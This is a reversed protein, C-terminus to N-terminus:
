VLRRNALVAAVTGLSNLGAHVGIPAGLDGTQLRLWALVLGAGSTVTVAVLVAGVQVRRSAGPRNAAVLNLTPGIHWMGFCLSSGVAAFTDGASRLDALLVGRFAIEEVFATGLPVRVLVQYALSAGTLGAVRRDAILSPRGNGALVFLPVTLAAGVTVGGLLGAPNIPLGIRDTSLGLPGLGIAVVLGALILNIPVYLPGNFPPWRNLLNNYALLGVGLVLWKM